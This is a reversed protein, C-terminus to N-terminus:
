QREEDLGPLFIRFPMSIVDKFLNLIGEGVADAPLPTVDPDEVPGTVRFPVTVVTGRKGAIARGVLPIWKILQDATKFPSVLLLFDVNGSDLELKGTGFIDLGEGRIIGKKIEVQKGRIQGDITM